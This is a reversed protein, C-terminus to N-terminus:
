SEAFEQRLKMNAMDQPAAIGVLRADKADHGDEEDRELRHELLTGEVLSLLIRRIGDWELLIHGVAKQVEAGDIPALECQEQARGDDLLGDCQQHTHM